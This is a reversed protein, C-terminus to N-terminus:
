CCKGGLFVTLPLTVGHKPFPEFPRNLSCVSIIEIREKNDEPCKTNASGIKINGKHSGPPYLNGGWMTWPTPYNSVNSYALYLHNNRLSRYYPRDNIM